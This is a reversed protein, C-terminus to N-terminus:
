RPIQSAMLDRRSHLVMLVLINQAKVKYIVRYSYILVERIESRDAEPVVRGKNPFNALTESLDLIDNKVKQAYYRSYDAIYAYIKHLDSRASNTWTVM